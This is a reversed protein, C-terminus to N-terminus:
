RAIASEIVDAGHEEILRNLLDGTARVADRPLYKFPGLQVPRSVRVEYTIAADYPTSPTSTTM